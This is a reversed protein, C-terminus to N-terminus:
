WEYYEPPFVFLCVEAEKRQGESVKIQSCGPTASRPFHPVPIHPGSSGKECEGPQECSGRIEANKLEWSGCSEGGLDCIELFKWNCLWLILLYNLELLKLNCWFETWMALNPYSIWNVWPELNLLPRNVLGETWDKPSCVLTRCKPQRNVHSLWFMRWVFRFYHELQRASLWLDKKLM